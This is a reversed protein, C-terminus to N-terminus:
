TQPMYKKSLREFEEKDYQEQKIKEEEQEKREEEKKIAFKAELDRIIEAAENQVIEEIRDTDWLCQIPMSFSVSEYGCCGRSCAPIQGKFYVEEDTESSYKCKYSNKLSKIKFDLSSETYLSGKTLEGELEEARKLAEEMLDAYTNKCTDVHDKYGKLKKYFDLYEEKDKFM